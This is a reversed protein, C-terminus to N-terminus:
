IVHIGFLLGVVNEALGELLRGKLGVLGGKTSDKSTIVRGTETGLLRM